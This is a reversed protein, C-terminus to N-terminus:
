AYGPAIRADIVYRGGASVAEAGRELASQLDTVTEVSEGEFGQARALGVLDLPPGDLRQGIWKNEVPRGRQLAVREQHLEDNFYSRNNAVVIMLPIGLHSATWLANVGMVFDGDGLVGMVLRGSDKLALAAGVTHGPGTGVAGGSDKGLYDLPGQFHCATNPWGIPLRAITVPRSCAFDGVTAGFDIVWMPSQEKRQVTAAQERWHPLGSAWARKAAGDGSQRLADLLQAAFQDPQALVPLDVAPLAQHDMSWGNALYTELSCHIVQAHIPDQTQANDSCGRLYGALDLWDFSIILDSEALLQKELESRTDGCVPLVHLDHDTPFVCPNQASTLVLAGIREALAVRCDWDEQRRSMRGMMLVPRRASELAAVVQAVADLRAQPSPAPQFREVPPITIPAALAEEQMSVDLCIYVPGFPPMRTIQNARLLSEVAAPASAPQDDWKVYGRVLAGQDKATHVWDIWPRRKHADVPGTAGLIIMPSRDCWANYIAMSGHMLGVNAHLAVAMPREAAKGYGDAISVAHEEHLCLVLQPGRSGLYNVLSDHLGRFSSGPVLSIYDLNLARLTEAVADSGWAMSPESANLPDDAGQLRDADSAPNNAVHRATDRM